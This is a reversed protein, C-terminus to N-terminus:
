RKTTSYHRHNRLGAFLNFLGLLLFISGVIVRVTDGAFMVMQIGAMLLLMLGMSINMRATYLGRQVPEASRRARLSFFVSSLLSAIIGAIFLWQVIEM